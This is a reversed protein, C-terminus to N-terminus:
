NEQTKISVSIIYSELKSFYASAQQGNGHVIEM